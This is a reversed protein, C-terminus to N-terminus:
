GRRLRARRRRAAATLAAAVAVLAAGDGSSAGLTKVACHKATDASSTSPAAVAYLSSVATVDDLKLQRKIVNCPPTSFYMTATADLMDEGLGWFHGIEHTVVSAVDYKMKCGSVTGSASVASTAASKANAASTGNSDDDSKGDGSNGKGRSDGDKGSDNSDGRVKTATAADEATLLAFPHRSNIIIDAEVIEGTSQDVYQLTVGLDSEHGPVPIPAYYIRNEGDPELLIQGAKRADFTMKPLEDDAARWTDFAQEVGATADPWVATLSADVIFPVEGQHWREPLGSTTLKPAARGSVVEPKMAPRHAVVAAGAAVLV